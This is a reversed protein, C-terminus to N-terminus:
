IFTRVFGPLTYINAPINEEELAFINNYHQYIEQIRTQRYQQAFNEQESVPL